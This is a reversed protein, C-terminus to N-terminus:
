RRAREWAELGERAIFIGLVASGAPDAWWLGRRQLLLSVLLIFAMWGCALNGVGDEQLAESQLLEGLFRKRRWLLPMMIIAAVSVVFGLAGPRPVERTNVSQIVGGLIYLALVLLCAAVVYSATREAQEIRESSSELGEVRLRWLVVGASVLEILSDLGFVELSLSRATIGAWVSAAGEATMWAVSFYELISAKHIWV